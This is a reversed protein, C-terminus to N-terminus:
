ERTLRTILAALEKNEETIGDTGCFERLLQERKGTEFDKFDFGFSCTCGSMVFRDEEKNLLEAAFWCDPPVICSIDVFTQNLLVQKMDNKCNGYVPTLLNGEHNLHRVSNESSDQQTWCHNNLIFKGYKKDDSRGDLVHVILSSNGCYYHWQEFAKIKHFCSFDNAALLYFISTSLSREHESTAAADDSLSEKPSSFCTTLPNRFIESYFGGEVHPKMDYKRVYHLVAPSYQQQTTPLASNSM